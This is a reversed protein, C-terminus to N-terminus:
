ECCPQVANCRASPLCVDRDARCNSPTRCDSAIFQLIFHSLHTIAPISFTSKTNTHLIIVEIPDVSHSLIEKLVPLDDRHM